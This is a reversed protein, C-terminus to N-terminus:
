FNPNFETANINEKHNFHQYFKTQAQEYKYKGWDSDLAFRWSQCADVLERSLKQAEQCFEVGLLCGCPLKFEDLKNAPPIYSVTM